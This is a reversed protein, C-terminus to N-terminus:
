GQRGGNEVLAEERNLNFAELVPLDDISFLYAPTEGSTNVHEHWAWPPTVFSDDPGWDFRVGDIITCGNGRYVHHVPAYTHRHATTHEGPQLMQMRCSMTPLTRGGTAPNVYEIAVGDASTSVGADALQALAEATQEWRYVLLPHGAPQAGYGVPRVAGLGHARESYGVPRTEPLLGDEYPEYVAAARSFVFPSDLGDLWLVDRDGENRHEHWLWNPTLVLDGPRMPLKEGEVTTSAGEGEIVFRLAAPTHRHARAVEGPRVLQIAAYITHTAGLTEPIGPNVLAIARREGPREIDVLDGAEAVLRRVVDWRWLHARVGPGKRDMRWLGEVNHRAMETYLAELRTAADDPEAAVTNESDEREDM